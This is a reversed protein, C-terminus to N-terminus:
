PAPTQHNQPLLSPDFFIVEQRQQCKVNWGWPLRVFQSPTWTAPDAGLRCAAAFFRRQQQESIGHVPFWCHLSKGGSWLVLAVPAQTSLQYALSACLDRTDQLGFQQGFSLLRTDDEREAPKFDFEIVLYNRPGTNANTKASPKGAQTHGSRATMTSPVIFQARRHRLISLWDSLRLTDFEATQFGICLLPDGPFLLPLIETSRTLRSAPSMAQLKQWTIGQQLAAAVASDDRKPWKPARATHSGPKRNLIDDITRETESTADRPVRAIARQMIGTLAARDRTCRETLHCVCKYIWQHVGTGVAPPNDLQRQLWSPIPKM